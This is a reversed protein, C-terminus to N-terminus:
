WTDGGAGTFRVRAGVLVLDATGRNLAVEHLLSGPFVAMTGPELRWTMHSPEFPARLRANGADIFMNINRVAYLRLVGSDERRPEGPPAAVCYVACWSAMPATGAPICGDPRVIAFRARAQLAMAELEAETYGNVEMVVACVGALMQRRLRVVAEDRWEFVDERSRFCLADAPLSPDRREDTASAAFHRALVPNLEDAGEIPVVALPAAFIPVIHPTTM